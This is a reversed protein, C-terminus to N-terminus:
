KQTESVTLESFANVRYGSGTIAARIESTDAQSADYEVLAKGETHTAKVSKIGEVKMVNTQITQECGTCTMGTISVEVKKLEATEKVAAGKNGTSNCSILFMLALASLVSTFRLLTKM